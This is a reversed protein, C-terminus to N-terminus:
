HISQLQTQPPINPSKPLLSSCQPWELIHRAHTACNGHESKMKCWAMPAFPLTFISMTCVRYYMCRLQTWDLVKDNFANGDICSKSRNYIKRLKLSNEWQICVLSHLLSHQSLATPNYMENVGAPAARYHSICNCCKCFTNFVSM